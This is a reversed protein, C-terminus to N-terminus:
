SVLADRMQLFAILFEFMMRWFIELFIFMSIFLVVLKVKYKKTLLSSAAEKPYKYFKKSYMFVIYPVGIAGIYYFVFLMNYSIFSKFTLFNILEQM